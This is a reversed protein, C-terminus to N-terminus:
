FTQRLRLLIPDHIHVIGLRPYAIDFVLMIVVALLVPMVILALWNRHRDASSAFGLLALGVWVYVM